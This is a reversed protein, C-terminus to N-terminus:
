MVFVGFCIVFVVGDTGTTSASSNAEAGAIAGDADSPVGSALKVVDYWLWVWRLLLVSSPILSTDEVFCMLWVVIGDILLQYRLSSQGRPRVIYIPSSFFFM